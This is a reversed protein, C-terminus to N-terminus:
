DKQSSKILFDNRKLSFASDLVTKAGCSDFLCGIKEYIFGYEVATSDHTAGHMNIVMVCIMGDPTFFFINTVYHDHKWGNYFTNQSVNDSNQQLYLKIRDM